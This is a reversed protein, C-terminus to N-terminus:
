TDSELAKEHVRDVYALVRADHQDILRAKKRPAKKPTVGNSNVYFTLVHSVGTHGLSEFHLDLQKLLKHIESTADNALFAPKDDKMLIVGRDSHPTRISFCQTGKSTFVKHVFGETELLELNRYLTVTDVDFGIRRRIEQISIPIQIGLLFRILDSRAQTGRYGKLELAKSIRLFESEQHNM